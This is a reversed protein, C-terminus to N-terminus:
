FASESEPRRLINWRVVGLFAPNAAIPRWEPPPFHMLAEVTPRRIEGPSVTTGAGSPGTHYVVYRHGDPRISSEGLYIMGHFVDSNSHRRFILLDGPQAQSLNRGVAHTNHRWLTQADAFQLFAGGATRFLNPGLPTFPYQYKAPSDFAPYEPLALSNAWASDHSRLAERYAFRILAACDNIEAPHSTAPLFYEAEALWTFWKRFAAVDSDTDFRLSDPTGDGWTDTRDPRITLRATVPTLGPAEVRIAVQAPNVGARITATWGDPNRAMSEVTAAHPPSLRLAPQQDSPTLISLRVTSHGNAPIPEPSVVVRLDPRHRTGLGVFGCVAALLCVAAALGWGGSILRSRVPSIRRM